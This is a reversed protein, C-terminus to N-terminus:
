IEGRLDRLVMFWLITLVIVLGVFLAWHAIDMQSSFPHQAWGLLSTTLNATAASATYGENM